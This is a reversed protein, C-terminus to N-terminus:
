PYNRTTGTENRDWIYNNRFVSEFKVMFTWGLGSDKTSSFKCIQQLEFFKLIGREPQCAFYLNSTMFMACFIDAKSLKAM